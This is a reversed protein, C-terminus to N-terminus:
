KLLIMKKSSTFNGANLTYIYLGSSLQSADFNIDYAGAEQTTNVLTAVENGLVDYVKLTVNSEESLSYKINTAPNFPNPYNQELNFENVIVPDEDIGVITISTSFHYYEASISTSSGQVSTGAVPDGQVTIHVDIVSDDLPNTPLVLPISPHRWDVLPPGDPTFKEPETWTDGGDTSVMIYGDFFPSDDNTPDLNETAASFALVLYDGIASRGLVPRSVGLYVDNAGGGPNWLSWTTDLLVKAVGGNVTPSWFYLSNADGQRYSGAVFDQWATEFSICPEEGFYNLTLGRMAGWTTDNSHDREWIKTSAGWTVGGDTSERYFVDGSNPLDVDEGLYTQGIKGGDSIAFPYSEAQDGSWVEWGDFLSTSFDFRNTYMSDAVGYNVSQSSAFIVNDNADVVMRPWIPPNTVGNGLGPDYSTFNFEFPGSDIHIMSRPSGAPYEPHNMIVAAGTSLGSIVGYGNRGETGTNTPVGGLQFWGVGNDTSGVYMTTRDAAGAVESFMFVVHLYGPTNLDAWLQQASANSQLDYGTPGIGSLDMINHVDWTFSGSNVPGFNISENLRVVDVNSVDPTETGTLAVDPLTQHSIRKDQAQLSVLGFLLIVVVIATIKNLM